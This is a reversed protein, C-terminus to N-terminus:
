RFGARAACAEAACFGGGAVNELEDDSLEDGRFDPLVVTLDANPDGEIVKLRFGEPVDKGIVQNIAENPNELALKRFDANRMSKQYILGYAKDMEEQTWEAM